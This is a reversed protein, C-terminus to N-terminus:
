WQFITGQADLRWNEDVPYTGDARSKFVRRLRCYIAKDTLVAPQPTLTTFEDELLKRQAECGALWTADPEMKLDKPTVRQEPIPQVKQLVCAAFSLGFALM